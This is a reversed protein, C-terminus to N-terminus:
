DAASSEILEKERKGFPLKALLERAQSLFEARQESTPKKGFRYFVEAARGLVYTGTFSIAVKPITGAALPLLTTAERAATRWLFGQGVVPIMERLIAHQDDLARGSAAAIKYVMMLQNKTLVITDAGASLLGGVVPILAPINSVFAFQANATSTSNIIATMAAGRFAPFHRAFSVARDELGAVLRHRVLDAEGRDFPLHSLAVVPEWEDGGAAIQAYPQSKGSMEPDNVVIADYSARNWIETDLASASVGNLDTNGTLLRAIREAEDVTPALVLMSPPRMAENRVDDFSIERVVDIMRKTTAIAGLVGISTKVESAKGRKLLKM